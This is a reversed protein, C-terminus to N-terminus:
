DAARAALKHPDHEADIDLRGAGTAVTLRAELSPQDAALFVPRPLDYYRSRLVPSGLRIAQSYTSCPSAGSVQRHFLM